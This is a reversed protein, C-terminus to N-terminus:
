REGVQGLVFEALAVFVEDLFKGVVGAVGSGLEVGVAGNDMQHGLHELRLWALGDVVGGAAGAAHQEGADRVQAPLALLPAVDAEVPLLPVQHRGGDGPHVAKQVADLIEADLAAVRQGLRLEHLAVAQHAEVHHQGIRGIGDLLPVAVGEGGVGPAAVEVARRRLAAGVVGEPLVDQLLRVGLVPRQAM